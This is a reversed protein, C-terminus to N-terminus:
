VIQAPIVRRPPQLVLTFFTGREDSHVLFDDEIEDTALRYRLIFDKNPIVARDKLSVAARTEDLMNVDIEHLVSALEFLEMGADINVTVSIDHGARTGKPTVPPTIKDADPVQQTPTGKTMPAPASGGGPIYRPGVVMPFVWEFVGDEYKLTEVYSIEIIVEVGPEINAVSQTFINPREQDLLSAVHGAAKAAEYVERAEARPKIQGAIRRDGVTMIMDDVAAGQPLPFVYVAEIKRDLPNHFAQRVTVRAIFGAIDAEVDSFQAVGEAFVYNGSSPELSLNDFRQRASGQNLENRNPESFLGREVGDSSSDIKQDRDRVNEIEGSPLLLTNISVAGPIRGDMLKIFAEALEHSAFPGYNKTSTLGRDGVPYSYLVTHWTTKDAVIITGPALETNFTLGPGVSEAQTGDVSKDLRKDISEMFKRDDILMGHADADLVIACCARLHHLTHQGSDPDLDESDIWAKLHRRMAGVYTSALIKDILWNRRGYKDAGGKLVRADGDDVSTILYDLPAKGEKMARIHKPNQKLPTLADDPFKKLGNPLKKLGDVLSEFLKFDNDSM